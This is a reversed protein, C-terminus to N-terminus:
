AIVEARSELWCWWQASGDEELSEDISDASIITLQRGPERAGPERASWRLVSYSGTQLAYRDGMIGKGKLLEVFFRSQM